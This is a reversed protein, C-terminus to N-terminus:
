LVDCVLAQRASSNCFYYSEEWLSDGLIHAVQQVVPIHRVTYM